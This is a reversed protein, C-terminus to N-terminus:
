VPCFSCIEQGAFPLLAQLIGYRYHVPHATWQWRLAELILPRQSPRGWMLRDLPSISISITGDAHICSQRVPRPTNFYIAVHHTM